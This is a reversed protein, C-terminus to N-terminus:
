CENSGINTNVFIREDVGPIIRVIESLIQEIKELSIDM